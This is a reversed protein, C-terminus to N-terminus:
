TKIFIFKSKIDIVDQNKKNINILM